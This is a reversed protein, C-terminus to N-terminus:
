DELSALYIAEYADQEAREEFSKILVDLITAISVGQDMAQKKMWAKASGSVRWNVPLTDPTSAKRGAGRRAGGHTM